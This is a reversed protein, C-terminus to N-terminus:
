PREVNVDHKYFFNVRRNLFLMAMPAEHFVLPYAVQVKFVVVRGSIIVAAFWCLANISIGLYPGMKESGDSILAYLTFSFLM